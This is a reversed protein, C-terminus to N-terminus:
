KGGQNYNIKYGNNKNFEGVVKNKRRKEKKCISEWREIAIDLLKFFRDNDNVYIRRLHHPTFIVIKGFSRFSLPFGRELLIKKYDM